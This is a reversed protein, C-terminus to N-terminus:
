RSVKRQQVGHGERERQLTWEHWSKISFTQGTRRHMVAVARGDTPPLTYLRATALYDPCDLEIRQALRRAEEYTM